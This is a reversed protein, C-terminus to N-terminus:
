VNSLYKGQCYVIATALEGFKVAELVLQAAVKSGSIVCVYYFCFADFSGMILQLAQSGIRLLFAAHM